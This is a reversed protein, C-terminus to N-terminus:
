DSITSIFDSKVVEWRNISIASLQFKNEIFDKFDNLLHYTNEQGVKFATESAPVVADLMGFECDSTLFSRYESKLIWAAGMECLSIHSDYYRPSHIFLIILDYKEYQERIVDIFNKGFKVGCGPVSSCFVDSEVDVGLNTLLQVLAKAYDADKSNHSIFLKPKKMETNNSEPNMLEINELILDNEEVPELQTKLNSNIKDTISQIFSIIDEQTLECFLDKGWDSRSTSKGDEHLQHTYQSYIPPLTPIYRKIANYYDVGSIYFPNADKDNGIISWIIYFIKDPTKNDLPLTHLLDLKLYQRQEENVFSYGKQTLKFFANDVTFIGNALLLNAFFNSEFNSLSVDSTLKNVFSPIRMFINGPIIGLKRVNFRIFEIGKDIDQNTM